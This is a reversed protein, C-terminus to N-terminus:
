AGGPYTLEVATVEGCSCTFEIALVRGDEELLQVSKQGRSEAANHTHVLRVAGASGQPGSDFQVQSRKIIPQSM